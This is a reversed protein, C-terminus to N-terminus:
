VGEWRSLFLLDEDGVGNLYGLKPIELFEWPKTELRNIIVKPRRGRMRGIVNMMVGKEPVSGGDQGKVAGFREQHEFFEKQM